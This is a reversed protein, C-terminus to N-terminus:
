HCNKVKHFNRFFAAKEDPYKELRRPGKSSAKKFVLWCRRFIQCCLTIAVDNRLCLEDIVSCYTYTAPSSTCLLGCAACRYPTSRLILFIFSLYLASSSLLFFFRFLVFTKSCIQLTKGNMLIFTQGLLENIHNIIPFCQCVM